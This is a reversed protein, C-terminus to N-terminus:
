ESFCAKLVMRFAWQLTDKAATSDLGCVDKSAIIAEIGMLLVSM